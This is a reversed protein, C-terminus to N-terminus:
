LFEDDQLKEIDRREKKTPRGTGRDRLGAAPITHLMKLKKIEQPPTTEEMFDPVLKASMRKEALALVKYTRSIPPFKVEIEEGIKVTHSPKADTGNILVKGKKCANAAMNRTKFVRVAWLWKDIRPNLERQPSM